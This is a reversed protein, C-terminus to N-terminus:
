VKHCTLLGLPWGIMYNVMKLSCEKIRRKTLYISGGYKCM